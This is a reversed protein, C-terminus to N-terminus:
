LEIRQPQFVSRNVAMWAQEMQTRGIALWRQDISPDQKYADLMRLCLEEMRKNENDLDVKVQPQSTYGHVPLPNHEM